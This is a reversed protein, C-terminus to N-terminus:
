ESAPPSPMDLRQAIAEALAVFARAQSGNPDAILVPRGTDAAESLAPDLPIEALRPVAGEVGDDVPRSV